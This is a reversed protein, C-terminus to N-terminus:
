AVRRLKNKAKVSAKFLLHKIEPIYWIPSTGAVQQLSPCVCVNELAAKVHCNCLLSPQLKEDVLVGQEWCIDVPVM